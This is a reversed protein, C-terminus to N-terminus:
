YLLLIKKFRLKFLKLMFMHFCIKVATIFIAFSVFLCFACACVCVCRCVCVCLVFYAHIRPM